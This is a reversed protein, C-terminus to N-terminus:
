LFFLITSSVELIKMNVLTLTHFEKCMNVLIAGDPISPIMNIFEDKSIPNGMIPKIFSSLANVFNISKGKSSTPPVFTFSPMPIPISIPLERFNIPLTPLNQSQMGLARRDQPLAKKRKSKSSTTNQGEKTLQFSTVLDDLSVNGLHM